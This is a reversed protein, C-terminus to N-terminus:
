RASPLRRGLLEGVFVQRDAPVAVVDAGIVDEQRARFSSFVFRRVLSFSKGTRIVGSWRQLSRRTISVLGTITAHEDSHLV